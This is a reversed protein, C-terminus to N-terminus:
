EATKWLMYMLPDFDKVEAALTSKFDTVDFKTVRAIGNKGNKVANWATETNLGVPSIVGLGTVAVRKEM